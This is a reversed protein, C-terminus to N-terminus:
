QAGGPQDLFKLETQAVEALRGANEGDALPVAAEPPLERCLAHANRFARRAGPLDGTHGLVCGLTFHAIALTRDLYLVRRLAAIAEKHHGAELLMAAHLYNLEPALPFVRVAEAAAAAAQAPELAALSRVRLAAAEPGPPASELLALVRAYEHRAYAQRAEELPALPAAVTESVAVAVSTPEPESVEYLRDAPLPEQAARGAEEHIVLPEARTEQGFGSEVVLSANPAQVLPRRYFIGQPRAVVEFPAQEWLPPDSSATILWGGPVLTDFLRRATKQVTERDFYILVNRCLILDMGWAGSAFSPYVDLALNLTGFAVRSRLRENVEFSKGVHRLHKLAAQAQEGRLSWEGYRAASAKALAKHCLDTALIHSRELLGEEELLMALSYAEEGSACGASWLRLLHEPGHTNRIVPVVERRIFEFHGPERFFYTEGVTLESLLDELLGEDALVHERFRQPDRIQARVMVRRMGLEASDARGDFALGARRNIDQALLEFARESWRM